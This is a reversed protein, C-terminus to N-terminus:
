FLVREISPRTRLPTDNRMVISAPSACHNWANEYDAWHDKRFHHREKGVPCDKAAPERLRRRGYARAPSGRVRTEDARVDESKGEVGRGGTQM